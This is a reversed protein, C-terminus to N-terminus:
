FGILYYFGFVLLIIAEALTVWIVYKNKTIWLRMNFVAILFVVIEDLMYFLIYIAIYFLYALSSIGAKAMMAAFIVPVAASCPFEVITILAAFFLVILLVAFINM